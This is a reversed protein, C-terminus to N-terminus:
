RGRALRDDYDEVFSSGLAARLREKARGVRSRVTGRPCGLLEAAEACSKGDLQCLIFASRYVEPVQKLKLHLRERLEHWALRDAPDAREDDAIDELFAHGRGHRAAKARARLALRYAATHLWGRVSDGVRITAAKRVLLLFADQAVDEADQQHGLVRRCVGLVMRGYRRVLCAFADEDGTHLFRALVAGDDGSTGPDSEELALIACGVSCTQESM